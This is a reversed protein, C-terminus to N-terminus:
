KKVREIFEENDEYESHDKSTSNSTFWETFSKSLWVVNISHIIKKTEMNLMRYVDNSHDVSYGMFVDGQIMNKTMVVGMEGFIRLSPALKPKCGYLLQFPCKEQVKIATINPLFTVTRACEAWVGYRVGNKLGANNL